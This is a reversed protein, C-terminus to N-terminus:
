HPTCSGEEEIRTKMRQLANDYTGGENLAEIGYKKMDAFFGGFEAMRDTESFTDAYLWLRIYRLSMRWYRIRDRIEDNEAAMEAKDFCNEAFAMFAPTFFARSPPEYCCMHYAERVPKENLERIYDLIYPAGAGCYAQVFEEVGNDVDYDPDWQLKALIYAKLEAMDSGTIDPSGEPYVGIVNHNKFFNMNEKFVHLNAHPALYHLFNVVYDWIHLNPSIAAWDKTDRVFSPTDVRGIGPSDYAGPCSELSHSFCCEISCLRVIVNQRPKTFKPPTRTYRYAFTDIYRGPFEEAVADAIANVYRLFSGALSGEEEDIARCNPCRCNNPKDPYTDDQTVSAIMANPDKRFSARVKQISMALVDPNTLCRQTHRGHFREGAANMPFYEPHADFLDEPVLTHLTHCFGVAYNVEVGHGAVSDPRLKSNLKNRVSFQWEDSDVFAAKRFNFVPLFTKDIEPLTVVSRQPIRRLTETFWRCGLYDEFFSYVGYLVGRDGHGAIYLQGRGRNGYTRIAYGEAGLAEFDIASEAMCTRSSEGIVIEYPNMDQDDTRVPLEVGTIRAFLSVFEKAAFVVAASAGTPIVVKYNTHGNRVLQITSM